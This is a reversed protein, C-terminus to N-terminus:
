KAIRVAAEHRGLDDYGFTAVLIGADLMHGIAIEVADWAWGCLETERRLAMDGVEGGLFKIASYIAKATKIEPTTM